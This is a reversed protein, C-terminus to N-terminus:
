RCPQEETRGPLTKCQQTYADTWRTGPGYLAQSIDTRFLCAYTLDTDTLVSKQLLAGTLDAYALNAGTLDTRIFLSGGAFLGTMVAQRLSAESFDCNDARCHSFDAKELGLGRFHCSDLLAYAFSSGPAKTTGSFACRTLRAHDFIAADLKVAHFSCEELRAHDFCVDSIDGELFTVKRMLARSFDPGPCDPAPFHCDELSAQDFRCHLLRTREFYLGTLRALSFRCDIFIAQVLMTAKLTAQDFQCHQWRSGTLCASDFTAGHLVSETVTANALMAETFDAGELRCHHLTISELLARSFDAQRLDLGSLDAGTFDQGSFDRRDAMIAIAKGRLALQRQGAAQAAPPREGASMMYMRYLGQGIQQREATQQHGAALKALDDNGYPLTDDAPFANLRKLMQHYQAPGAPLALSDQPPMGASAAKQRLSAEIAEMQDIAERHDITQMHDIGGPVVGAEMLGTVEQSGPALVSQHSERLAAERRALHDMLSSPSSTPESDLWPGIIARSVLEQEWRVIDGGPKRAARTRMVEQYHAPPRAAEATEIAVLLQGVDAADDESIAISGQWFLMLQDRHPFFWLTTLGLVVEVASQPEHKYNIFGRARWAPLQGQQVALTPHMNRILWPAAAPVEGRGPWWQDSPARNFLHLDMDPAFGPFGQLRWSEDYQKGMLGLQAQSTFEIPGLTAPPPQQRSSTMPVDVPEVNPLPLYHRGDICRPEMGIGLPNVPHAPGGYAHSLDLPMRDFPRPPTAQNQLWYRDGSVSLCKEKDGVQVTVICHPQQPQQPQQPQHCPWAYGSVLYEASPKPIGADLLCGEPLEEAALQWLEPEPRLKPASSMDTLAMVTVGLRHKGSQSWPRQMVSLRLPKIVHM